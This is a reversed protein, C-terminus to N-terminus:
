PRAKDMLYLFLSFPVRCIDRSLCELKLLVFSVSLGLSSLSLDAWHRHCEGEEDWPQGAKQGDGRADPVVHLWCFSKEPAVM